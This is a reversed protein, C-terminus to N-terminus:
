EEINKDAKRILGYFLLLAIFSLVFFSLASIATIFVSLANFNGGMYLYTNRIGIFAGWALSAAICGIIIRRVLYKKEGQKSPMVVTGGLTSRVAFYGIGATLLVFEVLAERNLVFAKIVFSVAAISAMVIFAEFGFKHILSNIREDQIKKM